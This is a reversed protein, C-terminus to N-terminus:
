PKGIKLPPVLEATLLDICRSAAAAAETFDIVEAHARIAAETAECAAAINAAEDKADDWEHTFNFSIAPGGTWYDGDWEVQLGELCCVCAEMYAEDDTKEEDPCISAYMQVDVEVTGDERWWASKVVIQGGEDLDADKGNLGHQRRGHGKLTRDEHLQLAQEEDFPTSSCGPPYDWGFLGSM